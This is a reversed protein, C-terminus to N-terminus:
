WFRQKGNSDIEFIREQMGNTLNKLFYLADSPANYTISDSEATKQGLSIWKKDFYFLEYRDGRAIFNDRNRPSYMIKSVKEPQAFEMGAWGGSPHKYDFSSMFDGDFVKTYDHSRDGGKDGPTGIIRGCLSITDKYDRYFAAEAINCYSGENGIYRMYKYARTPKDLVVINIKRYPSSTITYIVEPNRFESNDSGQFQGMIMRDVVDGNKESLPFKTFLTIDNYIKGRKIYRIKGNDKIEFVRDVPVITDNEYRGVIALIGGSVKSFTITKNDQSAVSVPVWDMHNSLCLFFPGKEIFSESLRFKLNHVQKYSETVDSILPLNLFTRYKSPILSQYELSSNICFEQRYIKAGSIEFERADVWEPRETSAVFTNGKIDLVFPWQHPANDDGRVPVFDIGSPVGCARLVYVIGHAFERCTGAKIFSIEPGLGPGNPLSGTWQFEKHNWKRMIVRAVELPDECKIKKLSDLEKKYVDRFRKHYNEVSEESLRYPLVYRMFIELPIKKSWPYSERTHFADDIFEILQGSSINRLDVNYELKGIDYKHKGFQISDITALCGKGKESYLKYFDRYIDLGEGELSLHYKMNSILFSAAKFKQKDHRFYNLTKDLEIRNMGSEKLADQLPDSNHACSVVLLSQIIVIFVLYLIQSM